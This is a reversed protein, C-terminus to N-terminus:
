EYYIYITGTALTSGESIPTNSVTIGTVKSVPVTGNSNGTGGNSTGLIGTVGPNIDTTGDFSAASSSGLNTQISRASTLQTASGSSTAYDANTANVANTANTANEANTANTANTATDATTANGASDAYSVSGDTRGTGGNVIGLKGVVGPTIDSTGDFFSGTTSGLNIHINRATALKDASVANGNANGTGGNAVPLVGDVDEGNTLTAKDKLALNGLEGKDQKNSLDTQMNSINENINSIVENLGDVNGMVTVPHLIDYDTGNFERIEINYTQM